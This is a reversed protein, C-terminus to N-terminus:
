KLEADKNYCKRVGSGDIKVVKQWGKNKVNSYKYCTHRNMCKKDNCFIM